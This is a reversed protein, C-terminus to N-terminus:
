AAILGVASREDDPRFHTYYSMTTEISSHRALAQAIKPHVMKEALRSVFTHRLSHFMLRDPDIGAAECDERLLKAAMSEAPMDFIKADPKKRLCRATLKEVLAPHMPIVQDRKKHKADAAQVTITKKDFNFSRPTMSAVESFRFGTLLAFRYIERREASPGKKLLKAVEAETMHRCKRKETGRVNRKPYKRLVYKSVAGQEGLHRLFAQVSGIRRNITRPSDKTLTVVWSDIHEKTLQGAFQVGASDFAKRIDAITYAIHNPSRGAATLHREYAEILESVPRVRQTREQEVIPDVHGLKIARARDELTRALDRTAAKDTFGRVWKQKSNEDRYKVNWIGNRRILTAM